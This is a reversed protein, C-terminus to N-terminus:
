ESEKADVDNLSTFGIIPSRGAGSRHTQLLRGGYKKLRKFIKEAVSRCDDQTGQNYRRVADAFREDEMTLAVDDERKQAIDITRSDMGDEDSDNEDTANKQKSNYFQNQLMTAIEPCVFYHFMLREHPCRRVCSQM